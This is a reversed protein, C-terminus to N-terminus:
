FRQVHVRSFIGAQFGDDEERCTLKKTCGANCGCWCCTVADCPHWDCSWTIKLCSVGRPQPQRLYCTSQKAHPWHPHGCACLYRTVVALHICLARVHCPHVNHIHFKQPLFYKKYKQNVKFWLDYYKTPQPYTTGTTYYIEVILCSNVKQGGLFPLVTFIWAQFGSFLANLYYSNLVWRRRTLTKLAVCLM